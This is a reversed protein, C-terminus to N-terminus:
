QKDNRFVAIWGGRLIKNLEKKLDDQADNAFLLDLIEKTVLYGLVERMAQLNKETILESLLETFAKQLKESHDKIKAPDYAFSMEAFDIADSWVAKVQPITSAIDTATLDKNQWLLIVKVAIRIIVNEVEEAKKKGEHLTIIKKVIDLLKVGDKGVFEKILSKGATSTAVNGGVNKKFRMAASQKKKTSGGAAGTGPEKDHNENIGTYWEKREEETDLALTYIDTGIEVDIGFKKKHEDNLKVQSNKLHISLSVEPDKKKAKLFIAGGSLIAWKTKWKKKHYFSISGEKDISFETVGDDETEAM